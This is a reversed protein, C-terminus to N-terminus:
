LILVGYIALLLFIALMVWLAKRVVAYRKTAIPALINFIVDAFM